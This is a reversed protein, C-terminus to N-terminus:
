LPVSPRSADVVMTNTRRSALNSRSGSIPFSITGMMGSGSDTLKNYREIIPDLKARLAKVFETANNATERYAVVTTKTQDVTDNVKPVTTTRVDTVLGKVEPAIQTKLEVYKADYGPQKVEYYMRSDSGPFASLGVQIWEDSGGPGLGPGGVGVWGAVHGQLVRPASLATVAAGVGHARLPSSIGAYSYSSHCATSASQTSDSAGDGLASATFSCATALAAVAVWISRHPLM